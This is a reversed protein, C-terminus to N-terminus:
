FDIKKKKSSIITASINQGAVLQYLISLMTYIYIGVAWLFYNKLNNEIESKYNVIKQMVM